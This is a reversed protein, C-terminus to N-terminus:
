FFFVESVKKICILQNRANIEFPIVGSDFQFYNIIMNLFIERSEIWNLIFDM